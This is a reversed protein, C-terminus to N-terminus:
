KKGVSFLFEKEEKTLTEYGSKSIKDLIADIKRQNNNNKSTNSSTKAKKYVTKLPNQKKSKFLNSITNNGTKNEGFQYYTLLFGVFAGGLHALHGGTNSIPIQIVDLLIFGVAIYWLKIAGIFRFHMAYNPAKTALGVLIATVGASAGVLLTTKGSLAPFYNYSIMFIIGGGVVGLFYYNFFQKKSFFDLFLNGFYFLVIMNFLLHLFGGHLFAYSILSWPMTLFDQFAVPLAFWDFVINQNWLMLSAFAKFLYTFLFIAVNLYILQEAINASKFRHKIKEIIDNMESVM